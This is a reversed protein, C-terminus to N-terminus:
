VTNVDNPVGVIIEAKATQGANILHFLGTDYDNERAHMSRDFEINAKCTRAIEAFGHNEQGLHIEECGHSIDGAKAILAFDNETVTKRMWESRPHQLEGLILAKGVGNEGQSDSATERFDKYKKHKASFSSGGELSFKLKGVCCPCMAFSARNRIAQMLSFDTANGCAHLALAIDFGQDYEEIMGDSATVNTLGSRQARELLLEIARPKMDVAHFHACPFLYALPLTLGGSGSGFDVVRTPGPEPQCHEQSDLRQKKSEARSKAARETLLRALILAFSQVQDRKRERRRQVHEKQKSSYWGGDGPDCDAPVKDWDIALTVPDIAERRVLDERVSFDGGSPRPPPAVLDLSNKLDKFLKTAENGAPSPVQQLIGRIEEVEREKHWRRQRHKHESRNKREEQKAKLLTQDVDETHVERAWEIKLGRGDFLTKSSGSTVAEEASKPDAFRVFCFGENLKTPDKSKNKRKRDDGKHAIRVYDVNGFESSFAERITCELDSPDTERPLNGVYIKRGKGLVACARVDRVNRTTTSNPDLM